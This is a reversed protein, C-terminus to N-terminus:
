EEDNRDDLPRYPEVYRSRTRSLKEAVRRDLLDKFDKYKAASKWGGKTFWGGTPEPMLEIYGTKPVYDIYEAFEKSENLMERLVTKRATDGESARIPEKYEKGINAKYTEANTQRAGASKAAANAGIRDIANKEVGLAVLDHYTKARDINTTANQMRVVADNIMDQRHTEAEKTKSTANQREIPIKAANTKAKFRETGAKAVDVGIKQQEVEFKGVTGLAEGEEKWDKQAKILPQKWVNRGVAIGGPIGGGSFAVGLGALIAGIKRGTHPKYKPNDQDPRESAWKRYSELLQTNQGPKIDETSFTGPSPVRSDEDSTSEPEDTGLRANEQAELMQANRYAFERRRRAEVEVPDEEQDGYPNAGYQSFVGPNFYGGM